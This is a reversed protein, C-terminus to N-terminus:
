KVKGLGVLGPNFKLKFIAWLGFVAPVLVNIFWLILGPIIAIEPNDILISFFAVASLERVGLAGFFSPVVSRALFVWGCAMWLMWFPLEPFFYYLLLIFQISFIFYRALSLLLIFQCNKRLLFIVLISLATGSLLIFQINEEALEIGVHRAYVWGSVALLGFFLTIGISSIRAIIVSKGAAKKHSHQMTRAMLDGLTFPIVFNLSLGALVEHTAQSFTIKIDSSILYRWKLIELAWNIPMLLGVLILMIYFAPNLTSLRNQIIDWKDVILQSLIWCAALTSVTKIVFFLVRKLASQTGNSQIWTQM